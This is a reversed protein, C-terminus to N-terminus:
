WTRPDAVEGERVLRGEAAKHYFQSAVLWGKLPRLPPIVTALMLPLTTIAHVWYPPQFALELWVAFSISPLCFFMSAFFAPGDAPDAYSFDLGCVECSPRLTLFGCFLRGEGCRPCRGLPGVIYPKLKPYVRDNM